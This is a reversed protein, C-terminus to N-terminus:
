WSIGNGYSNCELMPAGNAGKQVNPERLGGDPKVARERISSDELFRQNERINASSEGFLLDLSMPEEIRGLSQAVIPQM